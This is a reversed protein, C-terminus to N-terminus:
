RRRSGPGVLKGGRRGSGGKRDRGSRRGGRGRPSEDGSADDSRGEDAEGKKKPSTTSNLHNVVSKHIGRETPGVLSIARGEAGARGTRGVRHVYDEVENPM